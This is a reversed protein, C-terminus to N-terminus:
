GIVGGGTHQRNSTQITIIVDGYQTGEVSKGAASASVKNIKQTGNIKLITGIPLITNMPYNGQVTYSNAGFQRALAEILLATFVTTGSTTVDMGVKYTYTAVSVSLDKSGYLNDWVSQSFELDERTSSISFSVNVFLGYSTFEDAAVIVKGNEKRCPVDVWVGNSYKKAKVETATTEDVNFVLDIAQELRVSNDSCRIKAGTFLIADAAKTVTKSVTKTQNVEDEMYVPLIEITASKSIANAPVVVDVPIQAKENGELAETVVNAEGGATKDVDINTVSEESVLRVNWVFNLGNGKKVIEVDTEKSLKGEATVKLKYSGVAVKEFVFYGNKDTQVTGEATGSMSVTAGLIGKGDMGAISGSITYVEEVVPPIVNEYDPDDSKCSITGLMLVSGLLAFAGLRLFKRM